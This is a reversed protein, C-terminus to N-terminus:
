CTTAVPRAIFAGAINMRRPSPAPRDGSSGRLRWALRDFMLYIVPTTFLTLVQSVILGGVIAM